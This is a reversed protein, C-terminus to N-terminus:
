KKLTPKFNKILSEQFDKCVGEYLITIKKPPPPPLEWFQRTEIENM